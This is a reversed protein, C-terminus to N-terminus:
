QYNNNNVNGFNNDTLWHLPTRCGQGMQLSEEIKCYELM